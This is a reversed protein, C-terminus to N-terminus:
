VCMLAVKYPYLGKTSRPIPLFAGEADNNSNVCNRDEGLVRANATKNTVYQLQVSSHAPGCKKEATKHSTLQCLHAPRDTSLYLLSEHQLKTLCLRVGAAWNTITFARIFHFKLHRIASEASCAQSPNFGPCCCCHSAPQSRTISIILALLPQFVLWSNSSNRRLLEGLQFWNKHSCM